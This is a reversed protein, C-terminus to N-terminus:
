TKIGDLIAWGLNELDLWWGDENLYKYPSGGASANDVPHSGRAGPTAGPQSRSLTYPCPRGENGHGGQPKFVKEETGRAGQRTSRFLEQLERSLTEKCQCWYHGEKQCNFCRGSRSEIITAAQWLGILFGDNYWSELADVTDHFTPADVKPAAEVQTADLQAPCVTYGDNRKEAAPQRHYRETSKQPHSQRSSTSPPYHTCTLADNEEQELLARLLDLLTTHRQDKLHVVMPCNKPLIEAYFCDKSMRALEGLRYHNGHCERLIVTIQAMRNYYTRASEMPKQQLGCLTANLSQFTMSVGYLSDLWDLIHTVHLDGNEDIMKANDKAMGELSAFMVEKVKVPNHGQELAEEIKSRWYRYSIADEKSTERFM